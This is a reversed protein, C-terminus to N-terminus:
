GVKRVVYVSCVRTFGQEGEVFVTCLELWDEGGFEFFLDVGVWRLRVLFSRGHLYHDIANKYSWVVVQTIDDCLVHDHLNGVHDRAGVSSPSLKDVGVGELVQSGVQDVIWSVWIYERHAFPVVAPLSDFVRVKATVQVSASRFKNRQGPSVVGRAAKEVPFVRIFLPLHIRNQFLRFFDTLIDRSPSSGM